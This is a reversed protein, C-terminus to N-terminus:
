HTGCHDLVSSKRRPAWRQRVFVMLHGFDIGGFIQLYEVPTLTAPGRKIIRHYGGYGPMHHPESAEDALALERISCRLTPRFSPKPDSASTQPLM